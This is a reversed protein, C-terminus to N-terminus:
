PDSQHSPSRLVLGVRFGSSGIRAGPSTFSRYAARADNRGYYFSGGRVVRRGDGTLAERDDNPQYPYNASISRTWEWVNGSMDLVGYPSAGDPFIGVPTTTGIGLESTNCRLRDFTDGWPYDRTDKDGRAAKEWEAESPLTITKGTVQSLWQCYAIADHWTVEVVPHSELDKPIRGDPWHKPPQHDTAEVFLRYQANTIPVRAIAYTPLDVRHVPKEDGTGQESGMTFEGAPIEVWEPEGYPQTWYGAGARVLANMASSRQEVWDARAQKLKFWRALVSPSTELGARLRDTVANAVEPDVRGEGVDRVCEAALVLNHYRAPEQRHEGIAAILRSTREKSLMSLHGAALLVVERWWSDGSRALTYSVYDDRAAVALAALYEQFTLHSFTYVGDGRAVLLGTREEILHLFRQVAKDALGEGAVLPEFLRYLLDQLAEVEIEKQQQEHMHLAVNQLMLRRDTTDFPRNPLIPQEPLVGRAEDWKGLLVAIAEDYLEARRDPLKVRDRHVLAIVTLLLPNIALERIRENARIASVLQETQRQAAYDAPSGAGMQSIYVLRHWYSLFREVDAMTFDQVTTTAYAEGLRAADTYGKIRSTVVFRCDPYARTFAEILRAVRRRMDAGAVEDMGDLLIVAQGNNLYADFFDAPVDIRENQLHQRLFDLLLRHGETSEEAHRKLFSGLQRLPLLVPLLGVEDLGLREPVSASQEHLARAYLLALYRLLTTKGSGPDGLVVLRRHAALAENVSVIVTETVTEREPLAHRRREGPVFGAEDALWREEAAVTRQQTTRLTVYIQALEIHVLRGGSHVGQLQLYRNHAIVHTLYRGLATTADFELADDPQQSFVVQGGDGVRININDRGAFDRGTEVGGTVFSGSGRAGSADMAEQGLAKAGDGQAIAGSGMLIAQLDLRSGLNQLEAQLTQLFWERDADPLAAQAQPIVELKEILADLGQRLEANEAVNQQVWTAIEEETPPDAQDKWKELQNAILNTGVGAATAYLAGIVPAVQGTAAAAEVLPWVTMGAITGYAVYPLDQQRRQNLWHGVEGMKQKIRERWSKENITMTQEGQKSTVDKIIGSFSPFPCSTPCDPHPKLLL